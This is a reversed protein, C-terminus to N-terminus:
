MGTSKPFISAAAGTMQKIQGGGGSGKQLGRGGKEQKAEMQAKMAASMQLYQQDLQQQKNRDQLITQSDIHGIMRTAALQMMDYPKVFSAWKPNADLWQIFGFLKQAEFMPDTRSVDAGCLIQYEGEFHGPTITAFESTTGGGLKPVVYDKQGGDAFLFQKELMYWQRLIRSWFDTHMSLEESQMASSPAAYSKIQEATPPMGYGRFMSMNTIGCLEDAYMKLSDATSELKGAINPYTPVHIAQEPPVNSYMAQGVRRFASGNLKSANWIITPPSTAITERDMAANRTRDYEESFPKCLSPVGEAAHFRDESLNYADEVFPWERSDHPFEMIRLIADTGLPIEPCFTVVARVPTEDDEEGLGNWWSIHKRPLWCFRERVRVHGQISESTSTVGSARDVAQKYEDVETSSQLEGMHDKLDSLIRDLNKYKKRRQWLEAESYDHDHDIWDAKALCTTTEPVTLMDLDYIPIIAPNNAVIEDIVVRITEKEDTWQKAVREARKRYVDDDLKWGFIDAIAAVLEDSDLKLNIEGDEPVPMQAVQQVKKAQFPILKKTFEDKTFVKTRSECRYDWIVKAVAVIENRKRALLKVKRGFEPDSTIRMQLFYELDDAQQAFNPKLPIFRALKPATRIALTFPPTVKRLQNEEMRYRIDSSNEFPFNPDDKGIEGRMREFSETYRNRWESTNSHAREHHAKADTIIQDLEEASPKIELADEKKQTVTKKKPM